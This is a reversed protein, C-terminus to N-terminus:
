EFAAEFADLPQTAKFPALDLSQAALGFDIHTAVLAAGTKLHSKLAEAFLETSAQDLSITPEDLIWLARGTVLLRALGLRRRQGASLTQAARESLDTLNFATLAPEISATGFTEAWFTLNEVVTLAGKVGDAHAAYAITEPDAQIQGAQIPQLGAISRLLTTKGIGNPGRLILLDGAALTFSLNELIPRGNRAIQVADLTLM